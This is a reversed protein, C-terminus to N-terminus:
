NAYTPFRSEVFGHRNNCVAANTVDEIPKRKDYQLPPPEAGRAAGGRNEYYSIRFTRRQCIDDHETRSTLWSPKAVPYGM